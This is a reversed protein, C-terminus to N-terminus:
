WQAQSVSPHISMIGFSFTSSTKGYLMDNAEKGIGLTLNVLLWDINVKTDFVNSVFFLTDWLAHCIVKHAIHNIIYSMYKNLFFSATQYM